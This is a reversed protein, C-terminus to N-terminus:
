GSTKTPLSIETANHEVDDCICPILEDQKIEKRKVLLQALRRGEGANVLYHGTPKGKPGLEPEFPFQLMSLSAISAALAEIEAPTHPVERVNKPSKKPKDFLDGRRYAAETKTRSPTPM